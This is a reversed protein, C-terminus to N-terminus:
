CSQGIVADKKVGSVSSLGAALLVPTTAAEHAGM